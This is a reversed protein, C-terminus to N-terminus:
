PTGVSTSNLQMEMYEKQSMYDVDIILNIPYDKMEEMVKCFELLIAHAKNQEMGPVHILLIKLAPEEQYSEFWETRYTTLTGDGFFLEVFKKFNSDTVFATADAIVFPKSMKNLLVHAQRASLRILSM